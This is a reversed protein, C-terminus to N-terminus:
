AWDFTRTVAKKWEAYTEDRLKEDMSPSWVKDQAWNDRIDQESDWYGVALGAVYAAGLAGSLDADEGVTQLQRAWRPETALDVQPHLAVRIGVATYERRAIDAFREVLEPDATAALGLPEPWQSFPGALLAAGPNESFGHRPDTSITVPIGLRTSAALEQLRNHWRAILTADGPVMLLNFHSM